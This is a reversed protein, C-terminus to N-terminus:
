QLVVEVMHNPLGLIYQNLYFQIFVQLCFFGRQFGVQTGLSLPFFCFLKKNALSIGIRKFIESVNSLISM